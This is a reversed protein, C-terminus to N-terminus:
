SNGRRGEEVEFRDGLHISGDPSLLDGLRLYVM